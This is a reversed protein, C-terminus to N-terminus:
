KVEANIIEILENQQRSYIGNVVEKLRKRPKSGYKEKIEREAREFSKDIRVTNWYNSYMEKYEDKTIYRNHQQNKDFVFYVYDHYSQTAWGLEKIKQQYKGITKPSISVGQKELEERMEDIQLSVFGENCLVNQLYHRLKEFDTNADFGLQEICYCKLLTDQPRAQIRMFYDKGRGVNEYTYGQRKVKAKIADLRDTGFLEILEKRSYDRLELM